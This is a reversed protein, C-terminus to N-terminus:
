RQGHVDPIVVVDPGPLSFFISGGQGLHLDAGFPWLAYFLFEGEQFYPRHCTYLYFYSRLKPGMLGTSVLLEGSLILLYKCLGEHVIKINGM